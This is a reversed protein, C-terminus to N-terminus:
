VFLWTFVHMTYLLWWNQFVYVLVFKVIPFNFFVYFSFSESCQRVPISHSTITSRASITWNHGIDDGRVDEIDMIYMDGTFNCNVSFKPLDIMPFVQTDCNSETLYRIRVVQSNGFRRWDINDGMSHVKFHTRFGFSEGITACEDSTANLLSDVVSFLNFWILYM